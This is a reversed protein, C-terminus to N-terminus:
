SGGAYRRYTCLSTRRPRRGADTVCSGRTQSLSSPRTQRGWRPVGPLARTSPAPARENAPPEVRARGPPRPTLSGRGARSAWAPEGTKWLARGETETAFSFQPLLPQERHEAGEIVRRKKTGGTVTHSAPPAGSAAGQNTRALERCAHYGVSATVVSEHGVQRRGVKAHTHSRMTDYGVSRRTRMRCCGYSCSASRPEACIRTALRGFACSTMPKLQRLRAWASPSSSTSARRQATRNGSRSDCPSRTALRFPSITSGVENSPM